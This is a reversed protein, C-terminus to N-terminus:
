RNNNKNEKTLFPSYILMVNQQLLLFFCLVIIKKQKTEREIFIISILHSKLLLLNQCNANKIEKKTKTKKKNHISRPGHSIILLLTTINKVKKLIRM